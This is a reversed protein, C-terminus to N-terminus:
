ASRAPRHEVKVPAFEDAVLAVHVRIPVTSGNARRPTETSLSWMTAGDLTDTHDVDGGLAYVWRAFADGDRVIVHVGDERAIPPRATPLNLYDIVAEAAMLAPEDGSAHAIHLPIPVIPKGTM